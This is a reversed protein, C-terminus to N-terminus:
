HIAPWRTREPGPNSFNASWHDIDPPTYVSGLRKRWAVYDAADATNDRNFDGPTALHMQVREALIAHVIATPHLDDWFVYENENPVIQTEDYSFM